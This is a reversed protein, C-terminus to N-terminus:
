LHCLPATSLTSSEFNLNKSSLNSYTSNQMNKRNQMPSRWSSQNGEVEWFWALSKIAKLHSHLHRGTVSWDPHIGARLTLEQALSSIWWFETLSYFNSRGGVMMRSITLTFPHRVFIYAILILATVAGGGHTLALSVHFFIRRARHRNVCHWLCM